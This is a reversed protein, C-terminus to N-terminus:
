IDQRQPIGAEALVSEEAARMLKKDADDMHDFGLLHLLGHAFLYCLERMYGHGYERAQERARQTYIVVSGLMVRGTDPCVDFDSYLPEGPADAELAPFSLVDTADDTGRTRANLARMQRGGYFLLEAYFNGPLNFQKATIGAIRQLADLQEQAPLRAGSNSIELEM